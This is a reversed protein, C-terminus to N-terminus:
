DFLADIEDNSISDVSFLEGLPDWETGTWAYNIGREQVDYVDGATNGTSPLASVTAVSGRYRYVNTIDSKLAYTDASGFADLKLKDAASMLGPAAQTAPSYETNAPEAWTGDARLFKGQDGAAAGPVLGSTGAQSAGAGGMGPVSITGDSVALGSGVRVGGLVSSTAAPLTYNNAGEAVGDLKSKDSASMLGASSTTAESYTTDQAPIGLGTIDAKVVTEAGSVHGSADVTVKYLGSAHATYAPHTYNNAGAEIGALKSAQDTTMLAGGAADALALKDVLSKAEGDYDNTSLGKGTVKDVKGGLLTTIKGLFRSLGSYDLYKSM